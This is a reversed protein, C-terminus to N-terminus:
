DQPLLVVSGTKSGGDAIRHARAAHHLPFAGSVHPIFAGKGALSALTGLDAKTDRGPGVAVTFGRTFPAALLQHLDAAVLGLRGRPNLCARAMAPTVTGTTDLIVDWRRELVHWDAWHRDIIDSAGLSQVLAINRRSTVASVVAGRHRALQVAASGVAGAAGIVLITDGPHLHLRDRLYHLATLGGFPIAASRPWDLTEPKRTIIGSAPLVCYQAHCGFRMGTTAIVADGVKWESVDGGTAIVEGALDAGLVANRPGRWGLALRAPLCLGHPFRGARIRSDAASVTTARIRVLVEGKKPRPVPALDFSLSEPPGYAGAVAVHMMDPIAGNTISTQIAPM